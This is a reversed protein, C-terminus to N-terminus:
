LKGLLDGFLENTDDANPESDGEFVLRLTEGLFSRQSTVQGDQRDFIGQVLYSIIKFDKSTKNCNFDVGQSVLLAEMQKYVTKAPVNQAIRANVVLEVVSGTENNSNAAQPTQNQPLSVPDAKRQGFLHVVGM